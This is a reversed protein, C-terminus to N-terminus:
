LCRVVENLICDVTHQIVHETFKEEFVLKAHHRMALNEELSISCIRAACDDDYPIGIGYQLVLQQTDAPISNIIPLGHRFYDVSKMTLGICVSPKLINLGFHCQDMIRQKEAADYIADHFIVDAGAATAADIFEQQREGKGIIHLRVSRMRSASRILDCIRPIDIINNISGLYCLSLHDEPLDPLSAVPTPEAAFYVARSNAGLHLIDRFMDCETSVFDAAPLSSNRLYAWVKFVPSLLWKSKGSPFTEPWLDFIDFILRVNPHKRKYRALSQALFNPPLLAVIVDPQETELYAVVRQAFQYHSLIRQISLNKQYPTVHIQVCGPVTSVFPVKTAHDFDSTLYQTSYDLQRLGRDWARLRHDYHDSCSILCAKGSM